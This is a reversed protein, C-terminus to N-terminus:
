LFGKSRIGLEERSVSIERLRKKYASQDMALNLNAKSSEKTNTNVAAEKSPSSKSVKTVEKNSTEESKPM